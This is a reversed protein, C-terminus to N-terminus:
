VEFALLPICGPIQLIVGGILLAIIIGDKILGKIHIDKNWNLYEIIETPKKSDIHYNRNKGTNLEKRMAMKAFKINRIIEKQEEETKAHKLARKKQFDCYKDYWKIFNPFCKKIIKFKIDEVKFVVKQFKEAGLKKYLKQKKKYKEREKREM